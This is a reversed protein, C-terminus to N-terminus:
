EGLLHQVIKYKLERQTHSIYFNERLIITNYITQINVLNLGM